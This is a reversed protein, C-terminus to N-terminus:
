GVRRTVDGTDNLSLLTGFSAHPDDGFGLIEGGVENLDDDGIVAAPKHQGFQGSGVVLDPNTPVTQHIRAGNVSFGAGALDGQLHGRRFGLLLSGLDIRGVVPQRQQRRGGLVLERAGPWLAVPQADGHRVLIVPDILELRAAVEAMLEAIGLRPIDVVHARRLGLQLRRLFGPLPTQARANATVRHIAHEGRLALIGRQLDVGVPGLADGFAFYGGSRGTGLPDFAVDDHRQPVHAIVVGEHVILDRGILLMRRHVGTPTDIGHIRTMPLEHHHVRPLVARKRESDRGALVFRLDRRPERRGVTRGQVPAVLMEPGVRRIIGRIRMIRHDIVLAPDPHGRLNAAVLIRTPATIRGVLKGVPERQARAAALCGVPVGLAPLKRQDVRAEGRVVQLEVVVRVLRQVKVLQDPWNKAPDIGLNVLLRM